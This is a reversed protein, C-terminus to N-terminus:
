KLARAIAEGTARANLYTVPDHGRHGNDVRREEIPGSRRGGAVGFKGDLVTAVRDDIAVVNVWRDVNPPFPALGDVKPPLMSEAMSGGLPSGITIFTDLQVEPHNLLWRYAIVSGLSHAVVVKTEPKVTAHLRADIADALDARSTMIAILDLTRDADAGAVFKQLADISAEGGM